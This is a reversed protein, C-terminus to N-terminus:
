GGLLCGASDVIPFGAKKWAAMGGTVNSVRTFGHRRLVSSATSSRAGSHCIVAIPTEREVPLDAMRQELQRYSQLHAGEIHGANWETAERVDLVRPADGRAMQARLQEVTIQDVAVTPKGASRWAEIGGQLYGRVRGDLGVFALAHM